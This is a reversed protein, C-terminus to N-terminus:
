LIEKRENDQEYEIDLIECIATVISPTAIKGLMIKSLYWSDFYLGTKERVKEILWIQTQDMDVLRKKISKGFVTAQTM